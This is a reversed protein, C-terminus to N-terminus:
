AMDPTMYILFKALVFGTLPFGFGTLFSSFCGTFILFGPKNYPLLKTFGGTKALEDTIDKIREEEKRDKVEMKSIM